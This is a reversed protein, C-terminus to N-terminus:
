HQGDLAALRKKAGSNGSDAAKQYWIRAQALDVPVGQGNEYLIGLNGQAGADGQDAAKRFWILAQGFDQKVGQGGYYLAGLNNEANADGQDAAKRFWSAAQEFDQLVGLGSRYLSGLSEQAGAYGQDAAKLFWIRAQAYDQPVGQGRSYLAGINNEASALGQDAAKRYWILAQAYDQDVGQGNAYMLGLNGQAGASGVAAAKRYWAQATSYDKSAGKQGLYFRNGMEFQARTDGDNAASEVSSFNADTWDGGERKKLSPNSDPPISTVAALNDPSKISPQSPPADIGSELEANVMIKGSTVRINRQWTKYGSKKVAVVHDGAPVGVTSPTSGVFAGDMTIEAGDPASRVEVEASAGIVTQTPQSSQGSVAQASTGVPSGQVFKALDLHLNGDVFTPFETGKPIAIDKGHMFLFFPAAPWLVLATAVIGATMAGTHGGGKVEKTARLAAKEGDILRVSDMVIELKGGRAMRRKPVAETVTGWAIGGKAIVVTDLVKLEELVEFEVRDNVHADESSVTQSLRVKVPTGDELVSRANTPLATQQQLALISQLSASHVDTVVQFAFFFCWVLRIASKM